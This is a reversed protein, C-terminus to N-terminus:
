VYCALAKQLGAQLRHERGSNYFMYTVQLGGQRESTIITEVARRLASLRRHESVEATHGEVVFKDPNWRIVTLPKGECAAWLEVLRRLECSEEYGEHQNEDCEIMLVHTPLELWADPRYRKDSCALVGGNTKDFTWQADPFRNTLYAQMVREPRPRALRCTYCIDHFNRPVHPLNCAACPQHKTRVDIMGATKCASCCTAREGVMGFTPQATGCVCKRSVTDIM